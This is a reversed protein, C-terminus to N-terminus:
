RQRLPHDDFGEMDRMIDLQEDLADDEQKRMGQIISSLSRVFGRKKKFPPLRPRTLALIDDDNEGEEALTDMISMTNSRRLFAPTALLKNSSSPTPHSQDQDDRKRKLPTAFSDLMFRKGSSAPTRSNRNGAAPSEVITNDRQQSRTPTSAINGHIASLASRPKSPTASPLSDFLSLYHGDKQPTPGLQVRIAAPTTNDSDHDEDNEDALSHAVPLRPLVFGAKKRRPTAAIPNPAEIEVDRESKSISFATSDSTSLSVATTDPDRHPRKSQPQPRRLGDYERYKAAIASDNKIDDRGAKRGGHGAAFTKEWTKLEQRLALLHDNLTLTSTSM